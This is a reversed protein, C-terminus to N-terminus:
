ALGMSQFKDFALRTGELAQTYFALERALDDNVDVENEQDIDLSPKHMWDANEHWSIDQLKEILGDTNYISSNSPEALKVDKEESESGSESEEGSLDDMVDDDEEVGDEALVTSEKSPRGM